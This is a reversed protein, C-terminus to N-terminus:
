RISDVLREIEELQAEVRPTVTTKEHWSELAEYCDGCFATGVDGSMIARVKEWPMADRYPRDATLAEAVDAVALLRAETPLADGTTRHHYGRGDLREHHACAVDALRGFDHVRRLIQESFEPHKRIQAYEDNTPRGPKDLIMNSVGLKGLDHLLGARRLDRLMMSPLGLESGIGVAIEAVGASHEHTWPSKADVVRAFAECVRDLEAEDTVRVADAPEYEALQATLDGTTLRAWFPEDAALDVLADVLTPDFWTGRRLEAVGVAGRPGLDHLFVEVTQALGALRAAIPIEGGKLGIPHGGGDWHEDLCRVAQAATEPFRLDRMIEAGRECRTEVLAQEGRKGSRAMAAFRMVRTFLGAGPAVHASAFRFKSQARRWDVTKVDHKVTRDDAGFLWAMKAANSSCGLDKLLTAHFADARDAAPLGLKAALKSAILCSRAAHGAPQGETLDLATSLAALLESRRIETNTFLRGPVAVDALRRPASPGAQSARRAPAPAVPVAPAANSPGSPNPGLALERPPPTDPPIGVSQGSEGPPNSGRGDPLRSWSGPSFWPAVPSM